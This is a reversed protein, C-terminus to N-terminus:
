LLTLASELTVQVNEAGAFVEAVCLLDRVKDLGLLGRAGSGDGEWRLQGVNGAAVM